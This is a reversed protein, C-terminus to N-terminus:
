RGMHKLRRILEEEEEPFVTRLDLLIRKEDKRVMLRPVDSVESLCRKAFKESDEVEIEILFTSLAVEPSAGGGVSSTGAVVRIKPFMEKLQLVVKEARAKISEAAMELFRDVVSKENRLYRLLAQEMVFLETKGLRLVRYLPSHKMQKVLGEDGVAWGAQPGAFLKDGSFCVLTVGSRLCDV